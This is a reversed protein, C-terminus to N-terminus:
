MLARCFAWTRSFSFSVILLKQRSISFLNYELYNGRIYIGSILAYRNCFFNLLCMLGRSAIITKKEAPRLNLEYILIGILFGLFCFIAPLTWFGPHTIVYIVNSSFLLSVILIVILGSFYFNLFQKFGDYNRM